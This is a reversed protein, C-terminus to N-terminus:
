CAMCYGMYLNSNEINRRVKTLVKIVVDISEVTEFDCIVKPLKRIDENTIIDHVSKNTLLESLIMRNGDSVVAINAKNSQRAFLVATTNGKTQIMKILNGTKRGYTM